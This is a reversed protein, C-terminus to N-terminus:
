LGLRQVVYAAIQAAGGPGGMRERGAEGRRRREGEDHLLRSLAEAAEKWNRVPVLAEGLLRHQLHLFGRTFQPGPGPFAVVPKGLGAAQENATGAMGLVVTARHLADAFKRTIQIEAEKFTLRRSTSNWEGGLAQAVDHLFEDRFSPALPCLFAVTDGHVRALLDCARAMLALNRKAEERSGPLLVVVPQGPPIGFDEGSIHLCDMMVNGVFRANIGHARLVKATPEDRTFVIESLRRILLIEFWRHRENYESKATPVFVVPARAQAAMFLCYADGISITLDLSGKLRRLTRLQERWFGVLGARLDEVLAKGWSRFAFGGSPFLRRPELLEVEGGYGEGLGVLPYAVVSLRGKPLHSLIERAMLDEGYGNSVVLLRM